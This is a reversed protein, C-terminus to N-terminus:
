QLRTSHLRVHKFHQFVDKSGTFLEAAKMHHDLYYVLDRDPYASFKANLSINFAAFKLMLPRAEELLQRNALLIAAAYISRPQSSTALGIDGRFYYGYVIDRLERPLDFFRTFAHRHNRYLLRRWEKKMMSSLISSFTWPHRVPPSLTPTSARRAKGSPASEESDTPVTLQTRGAM